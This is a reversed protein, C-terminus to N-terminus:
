LDVDAKISVDDNVQCTDVVDVDSAELIWDVAVDASVQWTM